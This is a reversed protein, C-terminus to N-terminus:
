KLATPTSRSIVTGDGLQGKDNLGWDFVSLVGTGGLSHNSGAAMQLVKSADALVQGPQHRDTTTGDGLQAVHNRGWIWATFDGRVAQSHNQGASVRLWNSSGVVQVPANRSTSTGDGLQGYFNYGWAWLENIAPPPNQRIALSFNEGAAVGIVNATLTTVATPTSAATFSGNGLQGQSNDGWAYLGGTIRIGLTHTCGAAVQFYFNTTDVRTPTAQPTGISSSGLQGFDNAGWTM